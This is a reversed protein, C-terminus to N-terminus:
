YFVSVTAAARDIRSRGIRVIELSSLWIRAFIVSNYIHIIEMNPIKLITILRVGTAKGFKTHGFKTHGFKIKKKGNGVWHTEFVIDIFFM